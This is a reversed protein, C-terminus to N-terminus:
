SGSGHALGSQRLPRISLTSPAPFVDPLLPAAQVIVVAMRVRDQRLRAPITPM